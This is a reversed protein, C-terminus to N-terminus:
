KNRIPGTRGPLSQDRLCDTVSLGHVQESVCSLHVIMYTYVFMVVTIITPIRIKQFLTKTNYYM